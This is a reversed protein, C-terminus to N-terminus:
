KIDEFDADVVKSKDYTIEPKKVSTDKNINGDASPNKRNLLEIISRVLSRLLYAVIIISIIVVIFKGM